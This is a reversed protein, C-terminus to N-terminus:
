IATFFKRPAARESFFFRKRETLACFVETKKHFTNRRKQVARNETKGMEFRAWKSGKRTSPAHVDKGQLTSKEREM